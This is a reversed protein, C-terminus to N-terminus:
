QGFSRQHDSPPWLGPPRPKGASWKEAMYHQTKILPRSTSLSFYPYVCAPFSLYSHGSPFLYVSNLKLLKISTMKLAQTYVFVCVGQM